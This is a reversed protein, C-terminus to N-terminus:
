RWCASAIGSLALAPLSEVHSCPAATLTSIQFTPLVRPPIAVCPHSSLMSEAAPIARLPALREALWAAMRACCRYIGPTHSCFGWTLSAKKRDSCRSHDVVTPRRLSPNAMEDLSCGVICLTSPSITVCWYRMCDGIDLARTRDPWRLWTKECNRM